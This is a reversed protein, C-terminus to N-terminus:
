AAQRCLARRAPEALGAPRHAARPGGEQDILVPREPDGLVDRFSAVLDCVAEATGINRKFLILGWPQEDRLFAIEDATLEKGACGTIFAKATM